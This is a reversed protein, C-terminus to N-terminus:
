SRQSRYAKLMDELLDNLRRGEQDRLKNLDNRLAPSVYIRWYTMEENLPPRGRRAQPTIDQAPPPTTTTRDFGHAKGTEAIAARDVTQVPRKPKKKLGQGIPPTDDDLNLFKGVMM